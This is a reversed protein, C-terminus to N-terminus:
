TFLTFFWFFRRDPEFEDAACVLLASDVSPQLLGFQSLGLHDFDLNDQLYYDALSPGGSALTADRDDFVGRSLSATSRGGNDSQVIGSRAVSSPLRTARSSNVGSGPLVHAGQGWSSALIPSPRFSGLDSRPPNIPFSLASPALSYVTRSSLISVPSASSLSPLASCPPHSSKVWELLLKFEQFLDRDSQGGSLPENAILELSLPVSSIGSGSSTLASDSAIVPVSVSVSVPTVSDSPPRSNTSPASSMFRPTKPMIANFFSANFM